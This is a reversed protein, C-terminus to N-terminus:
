FPAGVLCLRVVGCGCVYKLHPLIAAPVYSRLMKPVESLYPSPETRQLRKTRIKSVVETVTVRKSDKNRKGDLAPGVLAWVEPSVVVGGPGCEGECGFAQQLADGTVLYELRGFVGGIHVLNVAGAGVGLKINFEVDESLTARGLEMQIAVCCMVARLAMTRLDVGGGPAREEPWMLVMADGAFKVVDGGHKSVTKVLM